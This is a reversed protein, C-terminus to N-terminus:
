RARLRVQILGFMWQVAAASIPSLVSDYTEGREILVLSININTICEISVFPQKCDKTEHIHTQLTHGLALILYSGYM